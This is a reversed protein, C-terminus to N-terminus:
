FGYDQCHLMGERKGDGQGYGQFDSAISGREASFHRSKKGPLIRYRNNYAMKSIYKKGQEFSEGEEDMYEKM